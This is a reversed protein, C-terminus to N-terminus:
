RIIILGSIILLDIIIWLSQVIIIPKEKHTIGYFLWILTIILYSIWTIISVGTNKNIWISYIQPITMIPGMIVALYIIKDISKTKKKKKHINQHRINM